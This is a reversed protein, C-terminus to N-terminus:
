QKFIRYESNKPSEKITNNLQILRNKNILINKVRDRYNEITKNCYINENKFGSLIRNLRNKYILLSPSTTFTPLAM